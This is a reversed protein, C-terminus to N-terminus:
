GCIMRVRAATASSLAGARAVPQRESSRPHGTESYFPVGRAAMASRVCLVGYARQAVPEDGVM